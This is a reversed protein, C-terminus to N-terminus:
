EIIQSMISLSTCVIICPILYNEFQFLDLSGVLSHVWVSSGYVDLFDSIAVISSRRPTESRVFIRWMLGYTGHFRHNSVCPSRVYSEFSIQPLSGLCSWPVSTHM